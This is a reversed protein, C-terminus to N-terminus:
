MWGGTMFHVGLWLMFGGLIFRRIRDWGTVKKDKRGKQTGFWVWIHESLTDGPKSRFLAWGELVVFYLIFLFWGITFPSSYDIEIM